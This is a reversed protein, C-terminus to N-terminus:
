VLLPLPSHLLPVCASPSAERLDHMPQQLLKLLYPFIGTSLTQSCHCVVLSSSEGENAIRL